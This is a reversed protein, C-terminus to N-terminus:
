KRELKRLMSEKNQIHEYLIKKMPTLKAATVLNLQGLVSHRARPKSSSSPCSIRRLEGDSANSNVPSLSFSIEEVALYQSSTPRGIPEPPHHSM